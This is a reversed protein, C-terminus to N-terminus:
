IKRCLFIFVIFTAAKINGFSNNIRKKIYQCNSACKYICVSLQMRVLLMTFTDASVNMCFSLKLQCQMNYKTSKITCPLSLCACLGWSLGFSVRGSTDASIYGVFVYISIDTNM